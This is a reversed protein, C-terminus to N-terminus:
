VLNWLSVMWGRPSACHGEIPGGSLEEVGKNTVCIASLPTRKGKWYKKGIHRETGIPERQPPHVTEM